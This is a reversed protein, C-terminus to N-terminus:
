RRNGPRRFRRFLQATWIIVGAVFCGLVAFFLPLPLAAPRSRHALVITYHLAAILVLLLISFWCGREALYGLTRERREAEFWYNRNPINILHPWKKPLWSFALVMLAPYVLLFGVFLAVYSQHSTWRDPEGALNFHAAVQDPLEGSTFIVFLAAVIAVLVM